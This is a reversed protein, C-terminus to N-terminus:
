SYIIQIDAIWDFITTRHKAKHQKLLRLLPLTKLLGTQLSTSAEYIVRSAYKETRRRVAYM